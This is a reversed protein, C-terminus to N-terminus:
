RHHYCRINWGLSIVPMVLVDIGDTYCKVGGGFDFDKYCPGIVLSAGPISFDTLSLRLDAMAVWDARGTYTRVGLACEKGDGYGVSLFTQVDPSIQYGISVYLGRHLEPRVVFGRGRSFSVIEKSDSKGDFTQVEGNSYMVSAVKSVSLTFIPGDLNSSQKYEIESETVKLIKANIKESQKTIIVDQAMINQTMALAMIAFLLKKM